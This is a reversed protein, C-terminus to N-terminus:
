RNFILLLDTELILVCCMMQVVQKGALRPHYHKNLGALIYDICQLPDTSPNPNSNTGQTFPHDTGKLFCSGQLTNPKKKM